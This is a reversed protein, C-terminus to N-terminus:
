EFTINLKTMKINSQEILKNYIPFTVNYENIYKVEIIGAQIINKICNLCPQHTCYLICGFCMRRGADLVANTEAHICSCEDLRTGSAIEINNCRPCGGDFCNKTGTPTGNYGMSVVKHFKDVIVAGVRRKCCNSRKAINFSLIGFTEDWSPRDM